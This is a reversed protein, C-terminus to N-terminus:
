RKPALGVDNTMLVARGPILNGVLSSSHDAAPRERERAFCFPLAVRSNALNGWSRRKM